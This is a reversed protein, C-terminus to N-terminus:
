PAARRADTKGRADAMRGFGPATTLAVTKLAHGWLTANWGFNGLYCRWIASIPLVTLKRVRNMDQKTNHM